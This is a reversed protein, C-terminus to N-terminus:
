NKSQGHDGGFGEAAHPAPAHKALIGHVTELACMQQGLGPNSDYGKVWWRQGCQTGSDGGTCTQVAAKSSALMYEEVKDKLDSVMVASKWMFRSLYGKQTSMDANCANEKECAAEYLVNTSNSYPSFFWGAGQLLNTARYKWDDSETFNAMVAAGYLYIGNTYTFSVKNVTDCHQSSSAGDYVHWYDHDIFGVDWSWDWIKEAWDQYTSNGTARALRAALQFMGGNSISNKYDIGNPNDPYIQWRLGGNCASTDWRSVLSNFVNAGLDIWSPLSSDDQPFKNEAATLVASGWFFLDDNGEEFAHQTPMYDKNEGLNTDHLLAETVVDNYTSDGTYHYYDLMAGWLAGAVWWYYPDQLDGVDQLNTLCAIM